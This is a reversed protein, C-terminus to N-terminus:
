GTFVNIENISTMSIVDSDILDRITTNGVKSRDLTSSPTSLSYFEYKVYACV